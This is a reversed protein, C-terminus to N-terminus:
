VTACRNFMGEIQEQWFARQRETMEWAQGTPPADAEDLIGLQAAIRFFGPGPEDDNDHAVVLATPIWGLDPYGQESVYGLLNPLQRWSNGLDEGVSAEIAAWLEHYTTLRREAACTRLYDLAVDRMQFWKPWPHGFIDPSNDPTRRGSRTGSSQKRRRAEQDKREAIARIQEEREPTGRGARIEDIRRQRRVDPHETSM